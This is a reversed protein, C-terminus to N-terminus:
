HFNSRRIASSSLDTAPINSVTTIDLLDKHIDANHMSSIGDIIRHYVIFRINLSQFRDIARLFGDEGNYYKPDSIRSFTDWGVVFTAGPFLEAKEQFTPAASLIMNDAYEKDRLIDCISRVREEISQFNLAPKDINKICVEFAIKSGLLRASEEAMRLHTGHIPNFSGPFIVKHSAESSSLFGTEPKSLNVTIYNANSLLLDLCGYRDGAVSLKASHYPLQGNSCIHNHLTSIILGSVFDEEEERTKNGGIETKIDIEITATHNFCQFAIYAKHERDPREGAPKQLSCTVGVGILNHLNDRALDIARLFSAMALDRAAEQSCYKDPAGNVYRRFSSQNYPIIVELLTYSGGGHRLLEHIAGSGGGTIAMVIKFPSENISRVVDYKFM